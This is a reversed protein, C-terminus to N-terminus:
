GSASEKTEKESVKYPVTFYFASGRGEKSDVWIKGDLMETYSKSIALGLGSGEYVDKDEIDAQTFSDFIAQQRDESIGIGTDKVYFEM